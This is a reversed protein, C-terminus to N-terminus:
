ERLLKWIYVVTNNVVEVGQKQCCGIQERNSHSHDIESHQALHSQIQSSEIPWTWENIWEQM